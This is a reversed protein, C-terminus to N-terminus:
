QKNNFLTQVDSAALATNYLRVQDIGGPWGSQWTNDAQTDYIGLMEQFGGVIFGTVAGDFAITEKSKQDYQAGDIYLTGTEITQDYTFAIQHWNGDFMHPIDKTGAYQFDWNDATGNAFHFKLPMSDSTSSEHDVFICVDSWFNATSPLSLLGDANVADKQSLTAQIWFAITFSTSTGFDNASVYHIFATSSGQMATGSVGTTSSISPDPFFCPYTSISDKFRVNLQHDAASTSDFDVYFRLPTTPTVPNDTPYDKPLVPRSLKECSVMGLLAILALLLIPMKKM